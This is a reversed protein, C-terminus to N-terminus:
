QTATVFSTNLTGSDLCVAVDDRNLEEYMLETVTLLRKIQKSIKVENRCPKLM